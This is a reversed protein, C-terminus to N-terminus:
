SNARQEPININHVIINLNLINFNFSAFNFADLDVVIIKRYLKVNRFVFLTTQDGAIM